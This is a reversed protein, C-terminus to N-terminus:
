NNERVETFTVMDAKGTKGLRLFIVLIGEFRAGAEPGATVADTYGFTMSDLLQLSFVSAKDESWFKLEDGPTIERLCARLRLSCIPLRLGCEITTEESIWKRFLDDAEDRSVNM